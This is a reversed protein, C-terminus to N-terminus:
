LNLLKKKKESFEQETLIGKNRLDALKAIEDAVSFENSSKKVTEKPYSSLRDTIAQQIKIINKRNKGMDGMFGPANAGLGIKPTSGVYIESTCEDLRNVNVTVLEGWSFLSMGGKLYITSGIEDTSDITFGDIDRCADKCARFCNEKSYNVQIRGEHDAISM